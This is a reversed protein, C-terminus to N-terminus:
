VSSLGDPHQLGRKAPRDATWIRGKLALWIFFKCRLSAWSRWIRRWAAFKISGVFFAEYASKSSHTHKTGQSAELRALWRLQRLRSWGLWNGTKPQRCQTLRALCLNTQNTPKRQMCDSRRQAPSNVRKHCKTSCTTPMSTQAAPPVL